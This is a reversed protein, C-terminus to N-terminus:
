NAMTERRQVEEEAVRRKEEAWAEKLYQRKQEKTLTINHRVQYVVLHDNFVRKFQAPIGPKPRDKFLYKM